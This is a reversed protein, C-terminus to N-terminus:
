KLINVESFYSLNRSYILTHDDTGQWLCYGYFTHTSRLPFENESQPNEKFFQNKKNHEKKEPLLDKKNHV